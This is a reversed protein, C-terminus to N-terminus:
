TYNILFSSRPSMNIYGAVGTAHRGQSGAPYLWGV